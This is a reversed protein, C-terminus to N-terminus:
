QSWSNATPDVVLTNSQCKSGVAGQELYGCGGCVCVVTRQLSFNAFDEPLKPFVKCLVYNHPQQLCILFNALKPYSGSATRSPRGSLKITMFGRLRLKLFRQSALHLTRTAECVKRQLTSYGKSLTPKTVLTKITWFYIM